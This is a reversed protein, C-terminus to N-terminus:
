VQYLHMSCDPDTTCTGIAIHPNSAAAPLISCLYSFSTAFHECYRDLQMHFGNASSGDVYLLFM